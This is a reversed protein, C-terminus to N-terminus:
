DEEIEEVDLNHNPDEDLNEVPGENTKEDPVKEVNQIKPGVKYIYDKKRYHDSTIQSESIVKGDKIISKYTIVKYGIRAKQVDIKAGAPLTGDYIEQVEPEIREIIESRIKVRYDKSNKDGYIYIYVRKNEVKTHIYIPFDFDNRFKLDLYGYAVAADQGYNVYAPPLSHPHRELITLNSLLLANYMTTSTQCVGGGVGPTLEGGIIVNAEKYGYKSERPGTTNNYSMEEGPLLIKGSIASASLKINEGRDSTSTKFSTSYEGIVGNIRSLLAKTLRPKIEKIPIDIDRLIYINSDIKSILEEELLKIGIVDETIKINGRNFDFKAEVAEKDIEQAINGVIVKIKEKEYKSELPIDKSNKKLDKIDKLKEIFNGQRGKNFAMDVALDYEYEFGLENLGIKYTKDGYVLNMSKEDIEPDKKDKIYKLAQEKTKNGVDYGHIKVGEYITDINLVNRYLFIGTGTAIGLVFLIVVLLVVVHRKM